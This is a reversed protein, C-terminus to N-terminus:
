YDPRANEKNCHDAGDPQVNEKTDRDDTGRPQIAETADDNVQILSAAIGDQSGGGM